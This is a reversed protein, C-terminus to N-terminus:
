GFIRWGDLVPEMVDEYIEDYEKEVVEWAEDKESEAVPNWNMYREGKDLLEVIYSTADMVDWRKANPFAVLQNELVACCVPNHFVLGQRYFPVLARVRAVKGKENVGGRAHLEILEIGYVGRRIIENALPYTIFEHLGTVEIGIVKARIRRAMEFIEDYLEDPHLKGHVIDRIYIAHKDVDVTLGVVASDSSSVKATRAVDVLIVHDYRYSDFDMETPDYDQFFEKPFAADKGGANPMNRFERYFVDLEGNSKYMSYLKRVKETGMFNPANSNLDDDCLEIVTSDWQDNELLNQLLSDQHLVTGLVIIRWDDRGRDVSGMLDGFFWDKKKKRQDGSDMNDPDELDDVIILGPRYDKYLLGRIQQGAGRPMICVEEGAVNVLWQDRNMMGGSVDGWWYKIRKGNLLKYKLNESQQQALTSSCSVPVIYNTYHFLAAKAPLLLNVISTKGIGRPAAIAVYQSDGDIMEFIRDHVEDFDRSFRDPFLVKGAVKTHLNCQQLIQKEEYSLRSSM